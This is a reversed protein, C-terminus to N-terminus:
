MLRYMCVNTIGADVVLYFAPVPSDGFARPGALRSFPLCSGIEFLTSSLPGYRLNDKLTVCVCVCTGSVSTCTCLHACMIDYMTHKHTCCTLGHPCLPSWSPDRGHLHSRLPLCHPLFPCFHFTTIQLCFIATQLVSSPPSSCCTHDERYFGCSWRLLYLFCRQCIWCAKMNSTRSLTPSTPVCRLMIFAIYSLGYGVDYIHLSFSLATGNFHSHSLVTRKRVGKRPLTCLGLQLLLHSFSTLPICVPFSTM